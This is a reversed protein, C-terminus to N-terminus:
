STEVAWTGVLGTAMWETANIAVLTVASGITTSDIYGAAVSVSGALRITDSAGATIRMGDSDQIIFTYSLGAAATPLTHYNKATSGENTLVAETEAVTLVNPSGVGATNAEVPLQGVCTGAVFIRAENRYDTIDGHDYTGSVAGASASGTAVTALPVHPTSAKDPFGTTNKTLVGAATLYIYNTSDDTLANTASGAYSRDTVGDTFVGSFVGYTLTGDKVVRLENAGALIRNNIVEKQFDETYYTSDAITCFITGTGSDTTGSLADADATSLASETPDAM